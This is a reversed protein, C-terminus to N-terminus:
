TKRRPRGTPRTTHAFTDLADTDILWDRGAKVAPLRGTRIFQRVRITSVGLARAAQSTTLLMLPEAM